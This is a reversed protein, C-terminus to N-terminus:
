HLSKPTELFARIEKALVGREHQECSMILNQITNIAITRHMNELAKMYVEAYPEGNPVSFGVGGESVFLEVRVFVGEPDEGFVEEFEERMTEDDDERTIIDERIM